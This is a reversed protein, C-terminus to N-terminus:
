NIKLEFSNRHLLLYINICRPTMPRRIFYTIQLAEPAHCPKISPNGRCHYSVGPYCGKHRAIVAVACHYSVGQYCSKRRAIVAVACHYSVGPYCGKHSAIVAVACHYSVGQYCSKRRAIVSWRGIVSRDCAAQLFLV